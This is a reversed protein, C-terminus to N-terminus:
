PVKFHHSFTCTRGNEHKYLLQMVRELTPVVPLQMLRLVFIGPNDCVRM